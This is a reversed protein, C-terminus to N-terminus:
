CTFERLGGQGSTSYERAWPTGLHSCHATPEFRVLGSEYNKRWSKMGNWVIKAMHLEIGFAVPKQDVFHLPESAANVQVGPIHLLRFEGRVAPMAQFDVVCTPMQQCDIASPQARHM